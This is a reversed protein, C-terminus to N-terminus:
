LPVDNISFISYLISVIVCGFVVGMILIIVPEFFAMLRKLAIKLDRDYTEAVQLLMTDLSGTEEGVELLHLAFAPFVNERRIPAVLGEGKKVGAKIPEMANAIARNSVVEKVINISAILPVASHLLTGLTRSFRSVELRQLVPGLLPVSLLNRDWSLRGDETNLWRRFFYWGVGGIAVMLWWYGSLIGSIMLMIQMPLPIPAGANEFIISFKPIVFGLLIMFSVIAVFVLICPYILASIIFSKLEQSDELYEHLRVLIEELIGGVEGAKIMNTYIRPFVQPYMALGDSLSKGSKIEKLLDGVIEKMYDNETLKALISLSRDLPLGASSLSSLEHTFILLDKQPVRKKKWPVNFERGMLGSINEGSLRIPMQGEEELRALASKEDSAEFSGEIVKGKSTVAKFQFLPM